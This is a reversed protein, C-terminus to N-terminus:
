KVAPNFTQLPNGALITEVEEYGEPFAFNYRAPLAFVYANNRGLERPGIPAAGIHFNEQQMSEWQEVSFVMIPIDQRPKEANWQPHRILILPGTEIIKGSQAGKLGAGEWKDHLVKYGQWNAPMTFSFGYKVDKHIIVDLIVKNIFWNGDTKIVEVIIPRRAAIGGTEKEASTIEIIDGTVEYGEENLKQISLIGIRDPWPSSTLRGPANQPQSLWEDLLGPTIYIRYNEEISKKVIDEPALLSVAQLKGGFAEVLSKVAAEDKQVSQQTEEQQQANDKIQNQNGACGFVFIGCFLILAFIFSKKM